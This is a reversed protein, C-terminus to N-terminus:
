LAFDSVYRGAADDAVKLWRWALQGSERDITKNRMWVSTGHSRMPYALKIRTGVSMRGDISMTDDCRALADECTETPLVSVYPAELVVTAEVLHADSAVSAKDVRELRVDMDMSATQFRRAQAELFACRHLLTSEETIPLPAANSAGDFAPPPRSSDDMRKRPMGHGKKSPNGSSGVFNSDRLGSFQAGGGVYGLNAFSM